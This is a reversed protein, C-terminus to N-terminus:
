FSRFSENETENKKKTKACSCAILLASFPKMVKRGNQRIKAVQAKPFVHVCLYCLACIDTLLLIDVYWAAPILLKKLPNSQTADHRSKSPNERLFVHSSGCTSFSFKTWWCSKSNTKERKKLPHSIMFHIYFIYVGTHLIVFSTLLMLELVVVLVVVATLNLRGSSEIHCACYYRVEAQFLFRM